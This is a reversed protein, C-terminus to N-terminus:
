PSCNDVGGRGGGGIYVGRAIVFCVGNHSCLQDDDLDCEVFILVILPNVYESVSM